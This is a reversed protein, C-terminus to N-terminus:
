KSWEETPVTTENLIKLIFDHAQKGSRLGAPFIIRHAFVPVALAKIDEPAIYDRGNVLAYARCARLM